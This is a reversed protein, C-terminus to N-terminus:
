SAVAEAAIGSSRRLGMGLSAKRGFSRFARGFSQSRPFRANDGESNNNSSRKHQQAQRMQQRAGAIAYRIAAWHAIAGDEELQTQLRAPARISERASYTHGSFSSTHSSARSSSSHITSASDQREVTPRLTGPPLQSLSESDCRILATANCLSSSSLLSGMSPRSSSNAMWRKLWESSAVENLTARQKPDFVLMRDLLSVLADSLDNDGGSYFALITAMTSEGKLQAMAVRRARWDSEKNATEFPFFGLHIAFLCVGLSWIDAQFGDYGQTSSVEKNTVEPAMYSRSGCRSHLSEPVPSGDSALVHQHALGWDILQIKNTTDTGGECLLVNELKLDRHAIGLDHAHQVAKILQGFLPGSESEDLGDRQVVYEFLEGGRAADMVLAHCGRLAKPLSGGGESRIDGM